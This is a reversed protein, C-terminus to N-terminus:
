NSYIQIANERDYIQMTKLRGLVSFDIFSSEETLYPNMLQFINFNDKDINYKDTPKIIVCFHEAELPKKTNKDMITILALDVWYVCKRKKFYNRLLEIMDEDVENPKRIKLLMQDDDKLM